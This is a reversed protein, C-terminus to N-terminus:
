VTILPTSHITFFTNFKTQLTGHVAFDTQVFHKIDKYFSFGTTAATLLFVPVTFTGTTAMLTQLHADHTGLCHRPLATPWFINATQTRFDTVPTSLFTSFVAMIMAL